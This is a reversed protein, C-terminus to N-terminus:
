FNIVTEQSEKNKWWVFVGIIIIIIVIIAVIWWLNKQFYEAITNKAITQVGPQDSMYTETVLPTVRAPGTNSNQQAPFMPQGYNNYYM